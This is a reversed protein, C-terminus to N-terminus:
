EHFEDSSEHIGKGEEDQRSSLGTKMNAREDYGGWNKSKQKGPTKQVALNKKEEDWM